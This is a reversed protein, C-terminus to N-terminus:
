LGTTGTPSVVVKAFSSITITLSNVELSWFQSILDATSCSNIGLYRIASQLVFLFFHICNMGQSLICARRCVSWEGFPKSAVCCMSANSPESSAKSPLGTLPQQSLWTLIWVLSCSCYIWIVFQRFFQSSLPSSSCLFLVLLLSNLFSSITCGIKLTISVERLFIWKRQLIMLFHLTITWLTVSIWPVVHCFACCPYAWRSPLLRSSIMRPTLLSYGKWVQNRFFLCFALLSSNM